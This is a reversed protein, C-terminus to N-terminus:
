RLTVLFDATRIEPLALPGASMFYASHLKGDLERSWFALFNKLRPYHPPLDYEQWIFSQLVDRHDPLHYIIEVTVLRYGSLLKDM